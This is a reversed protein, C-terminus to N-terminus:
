ELAAVAESAVGIFVGGDDGAMDLEIACLEVVGGGGAV